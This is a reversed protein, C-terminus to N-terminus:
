DPNKSSGANLATNRRVTVAGADPARGIENGIKTIRENDGIHDKAVPMHLKGDM